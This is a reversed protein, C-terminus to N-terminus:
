RWLLTFCACTLIELAYTFFINVLLGDADELIERKDTTLTLRDSKREMTYVGNPANKWTKNGRSASLPFHFYPMHVKFSICRRITLTQPTLIIMRSATSHLPQSWLNCRADRLSLPVVDKVLRSLDRLPALPFSYARAYYGMTMLQLFSHFSADLKMLKATNRSRLYWCQVQHHQPPSLPETTITLIPGSQM